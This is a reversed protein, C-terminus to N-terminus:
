CARFSQVHMCKWISKIFLIICVRFYLLTLYSISKTGSKLFGAKFIKKKFFWSWTDGDSLWFLDPNICQIIEFM